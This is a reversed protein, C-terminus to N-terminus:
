RDSSSAYFIEQSVVKASSDLKIEAVINDPSNDNPAFRMDRITVKYGNDSPESSALPFRANALFRKATETKQAADLAASDQPKYHPIARDPDFQAGPALSIGADDIANDTSIVARWRFPSYGTPFAAVTLPPQGRYERSNLLDMARSHLEARAGVYILLSLLAIVSAGQGRTNKKREGIEEGVLRFLEPLAIGLLLILLIWLDLNALLDAAVWGQRFPWFLRVGIGSALDLLAHAATGVVCVALAPLFTLAPLTSASDNKRRNRDLLCFAAALAAALLVSGLLSHLVTRHFRLFASAGGFYSLYDLDAAVGSAILMATGFRPLHKQGARALLLSTLAHTVPEM